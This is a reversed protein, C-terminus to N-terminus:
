DELTTPRVVTIRIESPARTQSGDEKSEIEAKARELRAIRDTYEDCVSRWTRSGAGAQGTAWAPPADPNVLKDWGFEEAKSLAQAHLAKQLRIEEDLSGVTAATYDARLQHNKLKSIYLGHTPTVGVATGDRQQKGNHIRCRGYTGDKLKMGPARCPGAGRKRNAGCIQFCNGGRKGM